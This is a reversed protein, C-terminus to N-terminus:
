KLMVGNNVFGQLPIILPPLLFSYHDIVKAGHKQCGRPLLKRGPEKQQAKQRKKRKLRQVLPQLMIVVVMMFM